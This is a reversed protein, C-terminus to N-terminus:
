RFKLTPRAGTIGTSAGRSRPVGAPRPAHAIAPVGAAKPELGTRSMAIAQNMVKNPTSVRPTRLM